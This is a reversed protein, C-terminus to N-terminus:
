TKITNTTFFKTLWRDHWRHLGRDNTLSGIEVCQCSRLNSSTELVYSPSWLQLKAHLRESAVQAGAATLTQIAHQAAEPDSAKFYSSFALRLGRLRGDKLMAALLDTTADNLGLTCITLAVPKGIHAQIVAIADSLVFSGDMIFHITEGPRPLRHVLAAANSQGQGDVYSRRKTRHSHLGAAQASVSLRQGINSGLKQRLPSAELASSLADELSVPLPFSNEPATM